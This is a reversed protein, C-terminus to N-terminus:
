ERLTINSYFSNLRATRVAPFNVYLKRVIQAALEAKRTEEAIPQALSQDTEALEAIASVTADRLRARGVAGNIEHFSVEGMVFVDMDFVLHLVKRSQMIQMTFKGLPMKFMLEQTVAQGSPASATPRMFREGVYGMAGAGIVSAAILIYKIV